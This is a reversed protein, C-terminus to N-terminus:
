YGSCLHLCEMHCCLTSWIVVAVCPIRTLAPTIPLGVGPMIVVVATTDGLTPMDQCCVVRCLLLM